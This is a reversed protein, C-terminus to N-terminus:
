QHITHGHTIIDQIITHCAGTPDLAIYETKNRFWTLQRKAYNRSHQKILSIAEDFSIMGSFHDFLESYGVTKLAKMERRDFLGRAEELLGMRVMNDTRANIQAYLQEKPPNLYYGLVTHEQQKKEGKRIDRLSKKHTIVLELARRVRGPNKLDVTEAADPSIEILYTIAEEKKILDDVQQKVAMPVPEMDDFGELLANLYLGSGGSVVAINSSKLLAELIPSAKEAFSGASLPAEISESAVFHHRVAELEEESPRAVGIRMEKYFQRSDANIIETGLTNALKVSLATKGSATPGAIVIVLPKSM